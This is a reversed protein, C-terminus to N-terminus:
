GFAQYEIKDVTFSVDVMTLSSNAYSLNYSPFKTPFCGILKYRGLAIGTQDIFRIYINKQYDEKPHYLGQKDIMLNKWSNFYMSVVDPVMKLFKMNVPPVELMGVFKAEYPGYKMTNPSAVSYDGFSVEQVLSGVGFGVLGGLSIGIDPMLVDWLYNRQYRLFHLPFDTPQSIGPM